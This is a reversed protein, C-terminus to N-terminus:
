PENWNPILRLTKGKSPQTINWQTALGGEIERNMEGQVRSKSGSKQSNHIVSSHIHTDSKLSFSSGHTSMVPLCLRAACHCSSIKRSQLGKRPSGWSSPLEGDCPSRPLPTGKPPSPGGPSEWPGEWGLAEEHLPASPRGSKLWSLWSPSPQWIWHFAGVGTRNGAGLLLGRHAFGLLPCRQGAMQKKTCFM